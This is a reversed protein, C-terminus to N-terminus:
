LSSCHALKGMENVAVVESVSLPGASPVCLAAGGWGGETKCTETPASDPNVERIRGEGCPAKPLLPSLGIFGCGKSKSMTWHYLLACVCLFWSDVWNENGGGREKNSHLRKNTSWGRLFGKSRILPGEDDDAVPPRPPSRRHPKELCIWLLLVVLMLSLTVNLWWLQTKVKKTLFFFFVVFIDQGGASKSEWFLM